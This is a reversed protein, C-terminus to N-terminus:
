ARSGHLGSETRMELLQLHKSTMGMWVLDGLGSVVLPPVLRFAVNVIVIGCPRWAKPGVKGWQRQMRASRYGDSTSVARLMSGTVVLRRASSPCHEAPPSARAPRLPARVFLVHM